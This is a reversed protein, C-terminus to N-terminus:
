QGRRGVPECSAHGDGWELRQGAGPAASRLAAAAGAQAARGAVTEVDGALAVGMEQRNLLLAGAIRAVALLHDGGAPAEQIGAAVLRNGDRDAPGRQGIQGRLGREAAEVGAAAFAIVQALEGRRGVGPM